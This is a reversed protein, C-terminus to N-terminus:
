FHVLLYYLREVLNYPIRNTQRRIYALVYSANSLLLTRCNSLLNEQENVYSINNLSECLQNDRSNSL